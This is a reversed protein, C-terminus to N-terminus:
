HPLSLLLWTLSSCHHTQRHVEYVWKFGPWPKDDRTTPQRVEFGKWTLDLYLNHKTIYQEYTMPPQQWEGDQWEHTPFPPETYSPSLAHCHDWQSVEHTEIMGCHKCSRTM